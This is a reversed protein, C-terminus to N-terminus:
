CGINILFAFIQDKNIFLRYYMNKDAKKNPFSLKWNKGEDTSIYIGDENSCITKNKLKVLSIIPKSSPAQLPLRNWIKGDASTLFNLGESIIRWNNSYNIMSFQNEVVRINFSPENEFMVYEWSEGLDISRIIGKQVRAIIIGNLMTLDTAWGSAFTNKWTVGEDFSKTIGGAYAVLMIGKSIEIFSQINDIKSANITNKWIDTGYINQFLGHYVASTYPGHIGPFLAIINHSNSKSSLNLTPYGLSQNKWQGMKPYQSRFLGGNQSGLYIENDQVLACNIMIHPPLGESAGLWTLGGDFSQIIKNLNSSDLHRITSSDFTSNKVISHSPSFLLSLLALFIQKM